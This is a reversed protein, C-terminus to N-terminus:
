RKMMLLVDIADEDTVPVMVLWFTSVAVSCVSVGSGAEQAAM